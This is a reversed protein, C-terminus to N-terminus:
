HGHSRRRYAGHVRSPGRPDYWVPMALLVTRRAVHEADYGVWRTPIPRERYVEFDLM